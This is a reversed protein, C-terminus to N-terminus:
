GGLVEPSSRVGAVVRVINFKGSEDAVPYASDIGLTRHPHEGGEEGVTEWVREQARWLSCNFAGAEGLAHKDRWEALFPRFRTPPSQKEVVRKVSAALRSGLIPLHGIVEPHDLAEDPSFIRVHVVGIHADLALIQAMGFGKRPMRQFRGWRYSFITGSPPVIVTKL